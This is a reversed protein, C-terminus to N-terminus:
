VQDIWNGASGNAGLESMVNTCTNICGGTEDDCDDTLVTFVAVIRYRLPNVLLVASDSLALATFLKRSHAKM